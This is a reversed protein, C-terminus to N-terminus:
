KVSFLYKFLRPSIFLDVFLYVKLYTYLRSYAKLYEKRMNNRLSHNMYYRNNPNFMFTSWLLIKRFAIAGSIKKSLTHNRNSFCDLYNIADYVANFRNENVSRTVSTENVRYGYIKATTKRIRLRKRVALELNFMTDEAIRLGNCFIDKCDKIVSLNYAGGCVCSLMKGSLISDCIKIRDNNVDSITWKKGLPQLENLNGFSQMEFSLIDIDDTFNDYVFKLAEDILIDDSDLFMVISGNAHEIGMWRTETVGSNEKYIYKIRNDSLYNKIIEESKDTSGDNVLILEWDNYTQIIVSEICEKLFHEANYVPVIISIM